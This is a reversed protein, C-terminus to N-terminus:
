DTPSKMKINIRNQIKQKNYETVKDLNDEKRKIPIKTIM